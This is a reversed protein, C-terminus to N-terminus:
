FTISQSVTVMKSNQLDASKAKGLWSWTTKPEDSFPKHIVGIIPQGRVAVCVLTTVYSVLNELPYVYFLMLQSILFISSFQRVEVVFVQLSKLLM